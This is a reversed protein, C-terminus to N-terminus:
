IQLELNKSFFRLRIFQMTSFIQTVLFKLKKHVEQPIV